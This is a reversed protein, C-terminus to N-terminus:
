AGIADHGDYEAEFDATFVHPSALLRGSERSPIHMFTTHGPKTRERIVSMFVQGIGKKMSASRAARIMSSRTSRLTPSMAKGQGIRRALQSSDIQGHGSASHMDEMNGSFDM